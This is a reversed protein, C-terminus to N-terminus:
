ADIKRQSRGKCCKATIGELASSIGMNNSQREKTGGNRDVFFIKSPNTKTQKMASLCGKHLDRSFTKTEERSRKRALSALSRSFSFSLLFLVLYFPLADENIPHLLYASSYKSILTLSISHLSV